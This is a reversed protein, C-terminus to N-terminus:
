QGEMHSSGKTGNHREYSEDVITGLPQNYKDVFMCRVGKPLITSVYVPMGLLEAIAGAVPKADQDKVLLATDEVGRELAKVYEKTAFAKDPFKGAKAEHQRMREIMNGLSFIDTKSM